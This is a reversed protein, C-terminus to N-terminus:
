VIPEPASTVMVAPEPPMCTPLMAVVAIPEPACRAPSTVNVVTFPPSIVVPGIVILADPSLRADASRTIFAEPLMVTSPLILTVAKADALPVAVISAM